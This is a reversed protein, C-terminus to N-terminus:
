TCRYVSANLPGILPPLPLWPAYRDVTHALVAIWRQPATFGVTLWLLFIAWYFLLEVELTWYVGDINPIGLLGHFMVSTAVAETYSVSKGLEPALQLTLFTM